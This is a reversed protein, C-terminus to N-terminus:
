DVREEMDNSIDSARKKMMTESPRLRGLMCNPSRLRRGPNRMRTNSAVQTPMGRDARKTSDDGSPAPSEVATLVAIM